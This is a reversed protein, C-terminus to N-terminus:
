FLCSVFFTNSKQFDFKCIVLVTELTSIFHERRMLYETTAAVCKAISM